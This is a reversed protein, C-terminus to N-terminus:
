YGNTTETDRFTFNAPLSLVKGLHPRRSLMPAELASLELAQLCLAEEELLDAEEQEAELERKLEVEMDEEDDM